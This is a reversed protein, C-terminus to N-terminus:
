VEIKNRPKFRRLFKPFYFLYSNKEMCHIVPYVLDASERVGYAVSEGRCRDEYLEQIRKM